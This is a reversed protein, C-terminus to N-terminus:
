FLSGKLRKIEETDDGTIIMDDIYIILCTMRGDRKKLFLTHDSQSQKFWVKSYGWRIGFWVRPSQKLGYLTKKLRCGEGKKYGELFGPPAEMYVERKLEGPLFANTVDFQYLPWDRNAAVPLLVWITKMKAVPSFTGDYDVGYTQTYGKAVLRAKYRETSGSAQTQYHIGM